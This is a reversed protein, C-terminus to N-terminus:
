TEIYVYGCGWVKGSFKQLLVKHFFSLFVFLVMMYGSILSIHHFQHCLGSYFLIAYFLMADFCEQVIRCGREVVLVLTYEMLFGAM